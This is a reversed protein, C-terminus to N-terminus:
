EAANGKPAHQVSNNKKKRQWWKRKKEVCVEGMLVQEIPIIRFEKTLPLDKKNITIETKEYGIYTVILIIRDTLQSDPIILIFKGEMDAVVGTKTNKIFVSSYPLAEKTEADIVQGKVVNRLSDNIPEVYPRVQQNTPANPETASTTEIQSSLQDSAIVNETTGLLILGALIKYFRSNASPQTTLLNRNLQQKSLRGCIKESSQETLQIIEKDSLSTFDVVTKSCQTCFKGAETKNMSAWEQGCPKDIKLIYSQQKKFSNM